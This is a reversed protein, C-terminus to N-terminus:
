IAEVTSRLQGCAAEIDRGKSKRVTVEIRRRQLVAMFKNKREESSRRFLDTTINYTVLNLHSPVRSMLKALAHADETRDNIGEFLTYEFSIRRRTKRHYEEASTMLADIPYKRNIPVIKNRVEDTPAHLSIALTLQLKEAALRRIAPVLGVTSVTIRRMGIRLGDKSNLLDIAKLVEDYNALPEGMGMFVVNSIREGQDGGVKIVQDVIEAATLNRSFGGMGTACFKCDYPCGVQSSVCITNRGEHPLYVSEITKGDELRFLYKTTADARSRRSTVAELNTLKCGGRLKMRLDLPLDTMEEVSTAGRGYLWKMVQRARFGQENLGALFEVLEDLTTGKLDFGEKKSDMLRRGGTATPIM